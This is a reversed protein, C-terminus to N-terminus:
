LQSFLFVGNSINEHVGQFIKRVGNERVVPHSGSIEVFIQIIERKIPM